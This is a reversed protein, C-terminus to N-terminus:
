FVKLETYFFILLMETALVPKGDDVGKGDHVLKSLANSLDEGLM